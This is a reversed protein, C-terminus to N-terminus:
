QHIRGYKIGRWLREILVKNIWRFKSDMSIKIENALLESIWGKGTFQRARGIRLYKKKLNNILPVKASSYKM